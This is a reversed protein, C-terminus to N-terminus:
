LGLQAATYGTGNYYLTGSWTSGSQVITGTITKVPFTPHSVSLNYTSTIDGSAANVMVATGDMLYGVGTELFATLTVTATSPLTSNNPVLGHIRGGHLGFDSTHHM